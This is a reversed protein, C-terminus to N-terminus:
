SYSKLKDRLRLHHRIESDIWPKDNPRVIIFKSPICMKAFDLFTRTFFSAADHVTGNNITSWDFSSILEKFQEINANKYLWILREYSRGCTYPFPIRIFTAKHDSVTAPTPITGSDLFAMDEPIIIPDLLAELRTSSQITNQMSNTLIINQLNHYNQNFLDENLDGVIILNNSFDYAKEINLNLNNFFTTDATKPSYFLGLLYAEHKVKIEVWLSEDCYVELDLRRSHVLESNLYLLLGGGHNTRDKRYPEDYASGIILDSVPVQHDLHTESFCLINFDLFNDKIYDLKNRISRVNFHLISLDSKMNQPGPNIEVDLAMTLLLSILFLFHCNKAADKFYEFDRKLHKLEHLSKFIITLFIILKPITLFKPDRFM